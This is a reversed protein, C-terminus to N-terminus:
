CAVVFRASNQWFRVSDTKGYLFYALATMSGVNSIYWFM